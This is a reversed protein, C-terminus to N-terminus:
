IDTMEVDIDGNGALEAVTKKKKAPKASSKPAARKKTPVPTGAGTATGSRDEFNGEGEHYFDELSRTADEGAGLVDAGLKKKGKGKPKKGSKAAEENARNEAEQQEMLKQELTDDDLLWSVVERTKGFDVGKPQAQFDGGSIVVKQVEEKQKARKLIREEITGRTILRYVTVQKTQGLRHCRDMAQSDMTPNWDSDYFIVTDAATLNIGLGGARTSLLFVFLEPKTQWDIVMDRRDEVKTSGDLRLYKWNRYALYEEVLDIMRTMQFFVLVRHGESHLKRLLQDMKALKGSDAIFRDLSPVRINNFGAKELSPRPMLGGVVDTVPDLKRSEQLAKLEIAPSIGFLSKRSLADYLANEQEIVASRDPCHLEIPPASAKSVFVPDMRRMNQEQVYTTSVSLLSVMVGENTQEALCDRKAADNCILLQSAPVEKEDEYVASIRAHDRNYRRLELARKLLPEHFAKSVDAPSADIFRLWSFAGDKEAEENLHQASWIDFMGLVKKRMGTTTYASPVHLMGGERYLFKPVEYQIINRTSYAMELQKGERNMARSEGFTALSFPSTVDSREFLDPHNCVKRFQMVINMLSDVSDDGGHAAREIIEAISIKDRLAKYLMRQRHTMDCYVDLEIKDGLESQVNKKVRRLMFPKLIMHLRKLQAQNLQTNSQAHSEIDKSFWESFEDHSDFLTPMIFHLLAWLEQMTNQIPTGTLLLRNRCSFALLAKWRSSQSSKIAQAEDLIMYQWKVRQLYQADQVVLQYSTILVHFPADETYTTQSKTSWFKRLVKRDKASGWYPLAKMKPVFKSIEQQWNHLTSAPAIVLFPGWVNHVEALYAMVSISQVTKGLGMEDALIGNIGQEYLNVLWNLGKLQYEKLQCALMKPQKIEIDGMGTPDQFNLEGSEENMDAAAETNKVSEDFAKARNQADRVAKQANRKAAAELAAEDDSGFDMDDFKGGNELDEGADGMEVDGDEAGPADAKARVPADGDMQEAAETNIKKGVFHSYLETQTILFNLKRQQRRAERMEEDKKAKDTAEKEAKKRLDREEKENKKWFVLMERMTRKAKAQQMKLAQTTKTQWRRAEKSATQATKRMNLNKNALNQQQLRYIKPIEKKAIDRWIQAQIDVIAQDKRGKFEAAQKEKEEETLEVPEKAKSKGKKTSPPPVVPVQEVVGTTADAPATGMIEDELSKAAKREAQRKKRREAKLREIEVVTREVVETLDELQAKQEARKAKEAFRNLLSAHIETRRKKANQLEQDSLTAARKTLRSTYAARAPTFYEEEAAPDYADYDPDEELDVHTNGNAEHGDVKKVKRVSRKGSVADKVEGFGIAPTGVEAKEKKSAPKMTKLVKKAAVPKSMDAAGDDALLSAIAMAGGRAQSPSSRPEAAPQTSDQEAAATAAPLTPTAPPQQSQRFDPHMALYPDVVPQQQAPTVQQSVPPPPPHAYHPHAYYGTEYPHFGHGGWAMEAGHGPPAAAIYTQGTNPDVFHMGHQVPQAVPPTPPMTQSSQADRAPDFM